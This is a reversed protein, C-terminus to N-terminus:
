WCSWKLHRFRYKVGQDVKSKLFWRMDSKKWVILSKMKDLVIFTIENQWFFIVPQLYNNSLHISTRWSAPKCEGLWKLNEGPLPHAHKTAKPSKLFYSVRLQLHFHHSLNHQPVFWTPTWTSAAPYLIAVLISEQSWIQFFLDKPQGALVINCRM